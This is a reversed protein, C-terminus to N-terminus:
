NPKRSDLLFTVPGDNVLAVKMMARFVGTAVELGSARLLDVCRQYMSEAMAPEAAATFSPRRGARCDALLTFQSVVLIGGRVDLISRNMKGQEDEFARLNLLKDCIWAADDDGDERAVGLLVLWGYGIQGVTAGDVGVSAESVRQIVARM